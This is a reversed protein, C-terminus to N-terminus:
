RSPWRVFIIGTNTSRDALEEYRGRSTTTQIALRGVIRRRRRSLALQWSSILHVEFLRTPSKRKRSKSSTCPRKTRSTSSPVIQEIVDQVSVKAPVPGAGGKGGGPRLKVPVGSTMVGQYQVAAKTVITARIQTMLESVTGAKILQPGVWEAFTVFEQIEPPYTFFCTLFHYSKM